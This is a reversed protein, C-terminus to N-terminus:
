KKSVKALIALIDAAEKQIREPAPTGGLNLLRGKLKKAPEPELKALLEKLESEKSPPVPATEAPPAVSAGPRNPHRVPLAFNHFKPM